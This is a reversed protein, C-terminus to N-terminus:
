YHVLTKPRVSKTRTPKTNTITVAVAYNYDVQEGAAPSQDVIIGAQQPLDYRTALVRINLHSDRLKTM